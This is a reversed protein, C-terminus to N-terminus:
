ILAILIFLFMVIVIITLLNGEQMWVLPLSSVMNASSSNPVPTSVSPSLPYALQDMFYWLSGLVLYANLGGCIAGLIKNQWADRGSSKKAISFRDPPTQYAFFAVALLFAAKIYFIQDLSTGAGLSNFFQEFQVLTFLALIIGALAIFEKTFGRLYGIIAFMAVTSLLATSLQVM